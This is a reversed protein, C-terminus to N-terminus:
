LSVYWVSCPFRRISQRFCSHQVLNKAAATQCTTPGHRITALDLNSEMLRLPGFARKSRHKRCSCALAISLLLLVEESSSGWTSLGVSRTLPWFTWAWTSCSKWSM